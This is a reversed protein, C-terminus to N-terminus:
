KQLIKQIIPKGHPKAKREEPKSDEDIFIDQILENRTAYLTPNSKDLGICETNLFNNLVPFCSAYITSTTLSTSLIVIFLIKKM